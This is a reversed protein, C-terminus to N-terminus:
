EVNLRGYPSCSLKIERLQIDHPLNCLTINKLYSACGKLHANRQVKPPRVPGLWMQYEMLTSMQHLELMKQASELTAMQVVAFAPIQFLKKLSVKANKKAKYM